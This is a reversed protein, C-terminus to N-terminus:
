IGTGMSTTMQFVIGTSFISAMFLAPRYEYKRESLDRAESTLLTETNCKDKALQSNSGPTRDCNLSAGVLQVPSLVPSDTGALLM